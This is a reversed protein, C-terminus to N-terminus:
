SIEVTKLVLDEPQKKTEFISEPRELYSKLSDPSMKLLTECMMRDLKPFALMLEKVQDEIDSM